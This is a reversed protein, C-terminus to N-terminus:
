ATWTARGRRRRTTAAPSAPRACGRCRICRPRARRRPTRIPAATSCGHRWSTTRTAPPWCSRMRGRDRSRRARVRHGARPRRRVPLSDNMDAGAKLLAEVAAIRGERAAFLLPTFGGNSRADVNAGRAVLADIVAAHGEAAAWMLATQGRWSRPSTPIPAAHSCCRQRCRGEGHARRGDARDRRRRHTPRADAGAELLMGITTANGNVAALWLPTAGYRNAANVNAGARILLQVIEPADRDVAWHLPTTGDAARRERRRAQRAARAGDRHRGGQRRRGPSGARRAGIGACLMVRRSSGRTRRHAM